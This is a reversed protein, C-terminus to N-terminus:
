IRYLTISSLKQNSVEYSVADADTTRVKVTYDGEPLAVMPQNIDTKEDKADGIFPYYSPSFLLKLDTDLPAGTLNLPKLSSAGLAKGDKDYIIAWLNKMPSNLRFRIYRNPGAMFPHAPTWLKTSISPNM